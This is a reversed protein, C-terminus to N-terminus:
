GGCCRKHKRGSGCPCPANRGVKPEARAPVSGTPPAWRAEWPGDDKREPQDERDDIPVLYGDDDRNGNRAAALEIALLAIRLSVEHASAGLTRAREIRALADDVLAALAPDDAVFREGALMRFPGVPALRAVFWTGEDIRMRGPTDDLLVVQDGSVADHLHAAEDRLHEELRFVGLRAAPLMAALKPLEARVRDAFRRVLPVGGGRWEFACTEILMLDGRLSSPLPRRGRLTWLERIVDKIARAGVLATLDPLVKILERHRQRRAAVDSPSPVVLLSPKRVFPRGTPGLITVRSM